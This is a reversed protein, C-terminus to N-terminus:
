LVVYCSLACCLVVCCLKACCLLVCCLMVCRLVVCFLLVCCLAVCCMDTANTMSEVLDPCISYSLAHTCITLVHISRRCFTSKSMGVLKKSLRSKSKTLTRVAVGSALMRCSETSNAKLHDKMVSQQVRYTEFPRGRKKRPGQGPHWRRKSVQIGLLSNLQSWPMKPLAMKAANTIIATPQPMPMGNPLDFMDLVLRQGVSALKSEDSRRSMVQTTKSLAAHLALQEEESLIAVVPQVVDHSTPEPRGACADVAARLIACRKRRVKASSQSFRAGTDAQGDHEGLLDQTFCGSTADRARLNCTENAYELQRAYPLDNFEKRGIRKAGAKKADYSDVASAELSAAQVLTEWHIHLYARVGVERQEGKTQKQAQTDVVDIAREGIALKLNEPKVAHTTSDDLQVSWRNSAVRFSVLSADKGNLATAFTLNHLIVKTGAIAPLGGLCCNGARFGDNHLQVILKSLQKKREDGTVGQPFDLVPHLYKRLEARQAKKLETKSMSLELRVNIFCARTLVVLTYSHMYACRILTGFM